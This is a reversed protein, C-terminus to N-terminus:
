QPCSYVDTNNTAATITLSGNGGSVDINGTLPVNIDSETVGTITYPYSFSMSDSTSFSCPDSCGGNANALTITVSSGECIETASASGSVDPRSLNSIINQIDENRFNTNKSIAGTEPDVGFITEILGEVDGQELLEKVDIGLPVKDKADIEDNTIEAPIGNRITKYERILGDTNYVDADYEIALITYIISGDDEDREEIEVIRFLKNSFDHMSSTVDIIDSAKLGNATFDSSFKIITDLRNQKLQKAAIFQAQVPDTILNLSIKLDNDRELFYRDEDEISVTVIDTTDRLDKHPFEVTVSTYFEDLGRSHVEIAGLINSDDFSKVSSGVNDPVFIWKGTFYDFIFFCSAATCMELINQFNPKGTDLIGNFEGQKVTSM